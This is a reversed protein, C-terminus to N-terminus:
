RKVHIGLHVLLISVGITFIVVALVTVVGYNRRIWPVPVSGGLEKLSVRTEFTGEPTVDLHRWMSVLDERRWGTGRVSLLVHGSNDLFYM